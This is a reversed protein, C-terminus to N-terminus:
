KNWIIIKLFLFKCTSVFPPLMGRYQPPPPMGMPPGMPPGSGHPTHGSGPRPPMPLAESGGSTQPGNATTETPTSSTTSGSVEDPKSQPM